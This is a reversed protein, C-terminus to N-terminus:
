SNIDEPKQRSRVMKTKRNVTKKVKEIRGKKMKERAIKWVGGGKKQRGKKMKKTESNRVKKEESKKENKERESKENKTM